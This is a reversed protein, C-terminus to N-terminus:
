GNASVGDQGPDLDKDAGTYDGVDMNLNRGTASEGAALTIGVTGSKMTQKASAIWTWVAVSSAVGKGRNTIVVGNKCSWETPRIDVRLEEGRRGQEIEMSRAAASAAVEAATAARQTEVAVKRTENGLEVTAEALEKTHAAMKRTARALWVTLAALVLTGVTAAISAVTEV